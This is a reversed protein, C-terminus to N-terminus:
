EWSTTANNKNGICSVNRVEKICVNKRNSYVPETKQSLIRILLERTTHRRPWLCYYLFSLFFDQIIKKEWPDELLLM